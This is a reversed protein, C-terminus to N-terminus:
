AASIRRSELYSPQASEVDALDKRSMKGSQGRSARTHAQIL